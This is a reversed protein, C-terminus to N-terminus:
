ICLYINLPIKNENIDHKFTNKDNSRVFWNASVDSIQLSMRKILNDFILREIRWDWHVVMCYYAYTNDYKDRGLLYCMYTFVNPM